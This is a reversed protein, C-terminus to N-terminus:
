NTGAYFNIPQANVQHVLPESVSSRRESALCCSKTILLVIFGSILLGFGSYLSSIAYLWVKATSNDYGDGYVCINGDAELLRITELSMDGCYFFKTAAPAVLGSTVAISVVSLTMTLAIFIPAIVSLKTPQQKKITDIFAFITAFIAVTATFGFLFM